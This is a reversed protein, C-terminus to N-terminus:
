KALKLKGTYLGKIKCKAQEDESKRKGKDGSPTRRTRLWSGISM